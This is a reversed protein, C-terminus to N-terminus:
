PNLLSKGQKGVDKLCRIPNCWSVVGRGTAAVCAVSSVGPISKAWWKMLGFLSMSVVLLKRFDQVFNYSLLRAEQKTMKTYASLVNWM